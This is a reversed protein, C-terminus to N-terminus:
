NTLSVSRSTADSSAITVSANSVSLYRQSPTSVSMTECSAAMEMCRGCPGGGAADGYGAGACYGSGVVHLRRGCVSPGRGGSQRNRRDDLDPRASCGNGGARRSAALLVQLQIATREPCVPRSRGPRSDRQRHSRWARQLLRARVSVALLPLEIRCRGLGYVFLHPRRARWMRTSTVPRRIVPPERLRKLFVGCDPGDCGDPSPPNLLGDTTASTPVTGAFSESTLEDNYSGSVSKIGVNVWFSPKPQFFSPVIEEAHTLDLDGNTVLNAASAPVAQGVVMGLVCMGALKM